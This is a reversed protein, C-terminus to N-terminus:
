NNKVRFTIRRNTIVTAIRITLIANSSTIQASCAYALNSVIVRYQYNNMSLDVKSINMTPMAMNMYVGIDTLDSFTVGGDTSIQWQYTNTNNASVSFSAATGAFAIVNSPHTAISPVGGIELFDPAGSSDNDAPATYGDSVLTGIVKGSGDTVTPSEGLIGDDNNDTFGAELVDNCGDGDSDLDLHNAIGDNDMDLNSCISFANLTCFDSDQYNPIGDNDADANPDIGNSEATDLIGDNDDDVDDSDLVGDGDTDMEIFIFVNAIDCNTPYATDCIQYQVSYYGASTNPPINLIGSANISLGTIGGNNVIAHTINADNVPAAGYTDNLTADSTNGGSTGNIGTASFDDNNAILAPVCTEKEYSVSELGFKKDGTVKVYLIGSQTVTFTVLDVSPDETNTTINVPANPFRSSSAAADITGSVTNGDDSYVRFAIQSGIVATGGLDLIVFGTSSDDSKSFDNDPAGLARDPNKWKKSSVISTAYDTVGVVVENQACPSPLVQVFITATDCFPGGDSPDTDDCISYALSTTGSFASDPYFSVTGNAQIIFQGEGPIILPSTATLSTKDLNSNPDIDNQLPNFTLSNSNYTSYYDDSAVPPAPLPVIKIGYSKFSERGCFDVVSVTLICEEITAVPTTNYTTSSSNALSTTGFFFGNSCSSSWSFTYSNGATSSASIDFDIAEGGTVILPVPTNDTITPAKKIPADFSFNLFARMAAVKEATTGNNLNHGGEYMVKGRNLDGFANGYAIKAARGPSNGSLVDSQNTDWVSITTSSRWSGTPYPLYVQESGNKTAGDLTGLFQMYSDIPNSYSYGTNSGDNHDNFDILGYGDLGPHAPDPYPTPNNSLFNMRRSPDLPDVLAELVSVAHCGSWIWGESGGNAFSDNWDYLYGHEAWTPDAHPLIFLDDCADLDGPLGISYASAPIEALDLYGKAINGNKQDLVWKPWIILERYVPVTVETLTTYTVVGKAKWTAIVSQVSPDALFQEEIIFPGGSFNRGDVTFDIGDKIKTPNIVWVVPVKKINILQYVLGYPKLGNQVNQSSVGMDIILSGDAITRNQALLTVSVLLFLAVVIIHYVKNEFPTFRIRVEM